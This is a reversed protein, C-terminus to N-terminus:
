EPRNSESTCHGVPVKIKEDLFPSVQSYDVLYLNTDAPWDESGTNKVQIKVSTM